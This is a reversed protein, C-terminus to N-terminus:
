KWVRAILLIVALGIFYPWSFVAPPLLRVAAQYFATFPEMVPLGPWGAQHLYYWISGVLLYGNLLGTGLDFFLRGAKGPFALTQGQYTIFAIVVLTIVFVWARLPGIEDQGTVIGLAQDVLGQYRENLFELVFLAVLLMTTVGLERPYGRVIGIIAFVTLLMLFAIEIPGV